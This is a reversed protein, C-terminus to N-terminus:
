VAVCQLMSCCVAVCQSVSCCVAACQLVSCCVRQTAAPARLQIADSEHAAPAAAQQVPQPQAARTAAPSENAGAELAAGKALQQRQKIENYIKVVGDDFAKGDGCLDVYLQGGLYAGM